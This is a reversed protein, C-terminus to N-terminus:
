RSSNQQDLCEASKRTPQVIFAAQIISAVQSLIVALLISATIM